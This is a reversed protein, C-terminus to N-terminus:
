APAMGPATRVEVLQPRGSAFARGLADHVEDTTSVRCASVGYAAALAVCDLGPLDLGPAGPTKELDGFWKLIAYEDNRMVLFTVPVGYTAATWFGTIAYQASGEGIVGIVRRDPQALQVGIAAPLGFGLGGGAGFYYSGPRSIRLRNRLAMTSSPAELVVIADDPMVDRLTNFIAAAPLPDSVEPDGPPPVPAPAERETEDVVQVLAELTLGVDAVLAEGFPARAAEDPDSTLQVLSTGEPLPSGPIYPYYPFVSSGAVLVLDHGELQGGLFAIAPLLVGQFLPHDEPFGLRGGATAPSAWVPLRLREALRVAADWGGASDLEPGAVLVPNRAEALRRALRRVADSAAVARGSV